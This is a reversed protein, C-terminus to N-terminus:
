AAGCHHVWKHSAINNEVSAGKGTGPGSPGWSFRYQHTTLNWWHHGLGICAWAGRYNRNYYLNVEDNGNPLYHGNNWLASAQNQMNHGEPCTAWNTDNGAWSCHFGTGPIGFFANGPHEYAHIKGDAAPAAAPAAVVALAAIAGVVITKRIRRM